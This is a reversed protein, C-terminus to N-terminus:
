WSLNKLSLFLVLFLIPPCLLFIIFFLLFHRITRNNFNQNKKLYITRLSNFM